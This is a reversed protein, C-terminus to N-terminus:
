AIRTAACRTSSRSCRRPTRDDYANRFGVIADTVGKDELRRVGDVTYADMSIVHIEFPKSRATRAARHERSSRSCRTSTTRQRRRADLRRVAARRPAARRRRPRRAPDADSDPVPCLKLAPIDYFSATTSSSSARAAPRAPDRDDRRAARRAGEVRHGHDAYDEPWPRARRRAHRPQAHSVRGLHGAERRAGPPPDAAQDRVDLLAADDDVRRAGGDARVSRHVAQRRPVRPQRGPQVPVEHGLVQPFCISDPVTFSNYGADEAAQALPILQYRTACRSPTPSACPAVTESPEDSQHTASATLRAGSEHGPKM